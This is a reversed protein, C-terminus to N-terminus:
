YPLEGMSVVDRRPPNVYNYEDSGAVRVVSFSHGHLHMPHPFGGGPMSVEITSNGPLSYVSGDPLLDAASTGSLIQLLVPTSPNSWTYGNVSHTGSTTNLVIDLNLAYDVGGAVPDGPAAPDVLPALDGEDLVTAETNQTTTPEEDEAGSYRLIASNIGDDFGTTGVSPNARIWYNDVDETANLIFSYRQGAYIQFYM